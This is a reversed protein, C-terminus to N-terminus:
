DRQPSALLNESPVPVRAILRYLIPLRALSAAAVTNPPQRNEESDLATRGAATPELGAMKRGFLILNRQDAKGLLRFRWVLKKGRARPKGVGDQHESSPSRRSALFLEHLKVGLAGARGELVNLTPMEIDEEVVAILGQPMGMHIALDAVVISRALRPERLRKGIDM